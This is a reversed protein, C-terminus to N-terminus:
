VDNCSVRMMMTLMYISAIRVYDDIVPLARCVECAWSACDFTDTESRSRFFLDVSVEDSHGLVDRISTGSKLM